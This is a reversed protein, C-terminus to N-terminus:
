TVLDANALYTQGDHDVIQESFDGSMMPCTWNCGKCYHKYDYKIADLLKDTFVGDSSIIDDVDKILPSAVGKVRLCLRFSGDPEISVNHLDKNLTCKMKSPLYKYLEDLLGPIHVLLEGSDAGAKLEDFIDRIEQDQPLLVEAGVNSFDYYPTKQDDVATISSYIGKDTLEKVMTLIYPISEKMITIEAVVDDSIGDKKMVALNELGWRSKKAIDDNRGPIFAVPDVSSTFGKFKGYKEYVQYIKKKAAPTNNSIVTYNMKTENLYKIIGPFSKVITPEGGYIILFVHPNNARLREFIPIWGDADLEAKHYARMLPYEEPMDEYDKVINCYSCALNCHRTILINAIWVKNM